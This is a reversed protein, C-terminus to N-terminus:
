RAITLGALALKQAAAEVAEGQAERSGKRAAAKALDGIVELVVMMAEDSLFSAGRKRPTGVRQWARYTEKRLDRIPKNANKMMHSVIERDSLKYRGPVSMNVASAFKLLVDPETPLEKRRKEVAREMARQLLLAEVYRRANAIVKAEEVNRPGAITVGKQYDIIIDDPHPYVTPAPGVGDYKELLRKLVRANDAAVASWHEIEADMLAQEKEAIRSAEELAQRQSHSNGKLANQNRKQIIAEQVMIERRVGNETVILHQKLSADVARDYETLDAPPASHHKSHSKSTM